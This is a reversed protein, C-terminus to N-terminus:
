SSVKLGMEEIVMDGVLRLHAFEKEDLEAALFEDISEARVGGAVGVQIKWFDDGLTQSIKEVFRNDVKSKEINYKGLPLGLDYCCVYLKDLDLGTEDSADLKGILSPKSELAEQVEQKKEEFGYKPLRIIPEGGAVMEEVTKEKKLYFRVLTKVATDSEGITTRPKVLVTLPEEKIILFVYKGTIKWDFRAQRPFVNALQQAIKDIVIFGANLRSRACKVGPNGIGIILKM